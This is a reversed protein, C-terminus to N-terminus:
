NLEKILDRIIQAFFHINCNKLHTFCIELGDGKEIILLILAKKWGALLLIINSYSYNILVLKSYTLISIYKRNFSLTLKLAIKAFFIVSTEQM